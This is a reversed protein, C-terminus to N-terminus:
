RRSRGSVHKISRVVLGNNCTDAATGSVASDESAAAIVAAIVAVIEDENVAESEIVAASSGAEGILDSSVEGTEVAKEAEEENNKNRRNKFWNEFVSIYKFLSIIFCMFILMAFVIGMGLLTNMGAKSMKEGFTYEPNFSISTIALDDGVYVTFECARKEFIARMKAVYQGNEYTVEPIEGGILAGLEGKNSKWESFMQYGVTDGYRETYELEAEIEEDTLSTLSDLTQPVGQQIIAVMEPDARDVTNQESCGALLTLCLVVLLASSLRKVTQRM